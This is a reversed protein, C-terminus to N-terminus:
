EIHTGVAFHLQLTHHIQSNRNQQQQEVGKFLLTSTIVYHVQKTRASIRRSSSNTILKSLSLFLILIRQIKSFGVGMTNHNMKNCFKCDQQTRVTGFCM